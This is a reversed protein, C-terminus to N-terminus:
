NRAHRLGRLGQWAYVVAGIIGPVVNIFTYVILSLSLALHAPVGAQGFLYVYGSERVGLGSLSVPLVLLFSIIPVFLLFYWLSIQVGLSRAILVNMAMLLVNLELSVGMASGIARAGCAIVAEYAGRLLDVKEAWRWLGLRQLWHRQLVFASGGWGAVFLWVIAAAIQPSVLPYSFALAVLAILFLVLLGSARDLLVTGVAAAPRKSEQALEYVRVVDGGVGTPLFNNFFTGVFYLATLRALSPRMDLANLLLRWRYARVVIGALSLALATALYPGHAQRVAQWVQQWGVQRLVWALLGVSLAIRVWSGLSGKRRAATASGQGPSPLAEENL